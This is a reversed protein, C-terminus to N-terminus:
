HLMGDWKPEFAWADAPVVPVDSAVLALMPALEVGLLTVWGNGSGRHVM